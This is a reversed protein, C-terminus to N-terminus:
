RVEDSGIQGSGMKVEDSEVGDPKVWGSEIGESGM